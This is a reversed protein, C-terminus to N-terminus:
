PYKAQNAAVSVEADMAIIRMLKVYEPLPKDAFTEQGWTNWTVLARESNGDVIDGLMAATVLYDDLIASSKADDALLRRAGASMEAADRCAVARYLDM